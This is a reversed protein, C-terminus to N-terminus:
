EQSRISLPVQYPLRPAGQSRVAQYSIGFGQLLSEAKALPVQGEQGKSLLDVNGEIVGHRFGAKGIEALIEEEGAKSDILEALILRNKNLCTLQLVGGALKIEQRRIEMESM